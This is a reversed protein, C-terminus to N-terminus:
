ASGIKRRKLFGAYQASSLPGKNHHREAALECVYLLWKRLLKSGRDRDKIEKITGLGVAVLLEEFEELQEVAGDLADSVDEVLAPISTDNLPLERDAVVFTRIFVRLRKGSRKFDRMYTVLSPLDLVSEHGWDPRFFYFFAGVTDQHRREVAADNTKIDICLDFSELSMEHQRRLLATIAHWLDRGTRTEEDHISIPALIHQALMPIKDSNGVYLAPHFDVLLHWGQGSDTTPEDSYENYPDRWPEDNTELKWIAHKDIM